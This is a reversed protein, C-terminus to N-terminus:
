TFYLMGVTLLNSIVFSVLEKLSSNTLFRKDNGNTKWYVSSDSFGLRHKAKGKFVFDIIDSLVNILM